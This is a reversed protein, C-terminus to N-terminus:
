EHFVLTPEDFTPLELMSNAYLDLLEQPADQDTYLKRLATEALYPARGCDALSKYPEQELLWSYFKRIHHILEDDGWAEIIAANIADMQFEPEHSRDWELIAVVRDRELMPIYLDDILKGQHSMFWLESRDRTRSTFDYNLGLEGFHEKLTDLLAEHDPHIAILLDDGNAFYRIYTDTSELGLGYKSIAYQMALVVMLTNDVVTSPQGSNNGRYKKVVSGDPTAIPTYVIETYLNALCEKGIAWDEMFQLRLNLVANILYPTLSSDFQSGDADCYVWGDPLLRLFDNWRGKFKTIGVTWPGKLHADYFQNNFDDVCGKAALLTDLPAATFVRTKNAEVKENPRLEAKLSGNWVGLKGNYLREYSEKLIQNKEEDTWGEFYTQKKGGYLAGAAAKMNMSAFIQQQDTIFACEGFGLEKLLKLVSKTAEEFHHPDVDGLKILKDYKTLDKVFAEKNLKSPSYHSLLPQFFQAADDDVTLYLSFMPSRGKIVHKTILNGSCKAVATLNNGIYKTLWTYQAH